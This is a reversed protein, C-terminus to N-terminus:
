VPVSSNEPSDVKIAYFPFKGFVKHKKKSRGRRILLDLGVRCDTPLVISAVRQKWFAQKNPGGTSCAAMQFYAFAM